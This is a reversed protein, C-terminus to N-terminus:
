FNLFFSFIELHVKEGPAGKGRGMIFKHFFNGGERGLREVIFFVNRSFGLHVGKGGGGEV